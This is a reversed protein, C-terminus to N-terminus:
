GPSAQTPNKPRHNPVARPPPRVRRQLHGAQEPDSSAPRPVVAAAVCPDLRLDHGRDALDPPPLRQMSVAQPIEGRLVCARRLGPMRLWEALPIRDGGRPM